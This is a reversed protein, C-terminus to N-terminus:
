AAFRLKERSARSRKASNRLGLQAYTNNAYAGDVKRPEGGNYYFFSTRAKGQHRMPKNRFVKRQKQEEIGRNTGDDNTPDKVRKFAM